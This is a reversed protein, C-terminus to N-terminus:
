FHLLRLHINHSYLDCKSTGFALLTVVVCHFFLLVMGVPHFCVLVTLEALTM